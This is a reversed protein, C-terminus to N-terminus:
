KRWAAIMSTHSGVLGLDNSDIRGDMNVDYRPNYPLSSNNAADEIYKALVAIDFNDVIGDDNLDYWLISNNQTDDKVAWAIAYQEIANADAKDPNSFSVSIAYNSTNSDAAFYIHEVNDVASDSYDLLRDNCPYNADIAWLEL